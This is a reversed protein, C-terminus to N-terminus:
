TENDKSIETISLVGKQLEKTRILGKKEMEKLFVSIKKYPTQKL